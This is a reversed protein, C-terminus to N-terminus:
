PPAAPADTPPPPSKPPPSRPSSPPPSKPPPSRVSSPPSTTITYWAMSTDTPCTYQGHHIPEAYQHCICADLDANEPAYLTGNTSVYPRIALQFSTTQRRTFEVPRFVESKQTMDYDKEYGGTCLYPTGPSPPSPPSPPPFPPPPPALTPEGFFYAMLLVYSFRMYGLPFYRTATKGATSFTVMDASGVLDWACDNLSELASFTVNLNFIQYFDLNGTLPRRTRTDDHLVKNHLILVDMHTSVRVLMQVFDLAGIASHRVLCAVSAPSNGIKGPYWKDNEATNKQLFNLFAMVTDDIVSALSTVARKAHMFSKELNIAAVHNGANLDDVGFQETDHNKPQAGAELLRRYYQSSVVSATQIPTNIFLSVFVNLGESIAVDLENTDLFATAAMLPEDIIACACTTVNRVLIGIVRVSAIVPEINIPERASDEIFQVFAEITHIIPQPLAMMFESILDAGCQSLVEKVAQRSGTYLHGGMNLVGIITDYVIRGVNLIQKIPSLVPAYMGTYATDVGRVIDVSHANWVMAMSGVVVLMVMMRAYSGLVKGGIGRVDFFALPVSAAFIVNALLQIRTTEERLSLEDFEPHSKRMVHLGLCTVYSTIGFHLGCVAVAICYAIVVVVTYM